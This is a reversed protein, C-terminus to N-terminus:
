QDPPDPRPVPDFKPQLLIRLAAPLLRSFLFSHGASLNHEVDIGYRVLTSGNHPSGLTIVRRFRGRYYNQASVVSHTSFPASEGQITSPYNQCLMRTLVGGQSHGVVDYRTFAWDTYSREFQTLVNDLDFALPRLDDYTANYGLSGANPDFGYDVPVVFGVLRSQQLISLFAPSWTASSSAYGHVLVIPPRTILFLKTSHDGSGDARQVGLTVILEPVGPVFQIDSPDFAAIYVWAPTSDSLTVTNASLHGAIDASGGFVSDVTINFQTPQSLPSAPTMEILLPTVGDAVLGSEVQPQQALIDPDSVPILPVDVGTSPFANTFAAVSAGRHLSIDVTSNTEGM